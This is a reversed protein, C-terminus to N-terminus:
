LIFIFITAVFALTFIITYLYTRKALWNGIEGDGAKIDEAM